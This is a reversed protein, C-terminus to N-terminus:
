LFAQLLKLSAITAIFNRIKKENNIDYNINVSYQFDSAINIMKDM